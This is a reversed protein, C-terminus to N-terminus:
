INFDLDEYELALPSIRTATPGTSLGTYGNAANVTFTKPTNSRTINYLKSWSYHGLDSSMSTAAGATNGATAATVLGVNSVNCIVNAINGSYNIGEVKYIGDANYTGVGITNGSGDTSTLGGYPGFRTDKLVFYDGVAIGSKVLPTTGDGFAEQNLYAASDLKLNITPRSNVGSTSKGVAVITGYDGKINVDTIRERVVTQTSFLSKPPSIVDYGFGGNTITIGNVTGAASVTATATAKTVEFQSYHINSSVGVAVLKNDGFALGNIQVGVPSGDSILHKKYWNDGNLSNYGMGNGGAAFWVNDQHNVSWLAFTGGTGVINWTLGDDISKFISGASGVAVWETNGYGIANINSSISTTTVGSWIEGDTSRYLAGANGVAVFTGNNYEVDNFQQTAWKNAVVFATAIGADGPESYLITGAAGVAVTRERNVTVVQGGQIQAVPVVGSAVGRLSQSITVDTYSPIFGTQIKDYIRSPGFSSGRDTSISITGGTGVVVIATSLGTVANITTGSAGLSKTWTVGDTSTNIGSTSGVAVFIGEPTYDVGKFNIDTESSKKVWTAGIEPTQSITSAISIVPASEYGAGFENMTISDVKGGASVVVTGRATEVDAIKLLEVKGLVKTNSTRNDYASFMPFGSDLYMTTDSASIPRIITGVPNFKATYNSREKSIPIGDVILDSEQKKWSSVRVLSPNTSIGGGGYSPTEIKSVDTIDSIVRDSQTPVDNDRLLQLKDGVKVTRVPNLVEIDANGGRYFLVQLKSDKKPAEVFNLTTGGELTYNEGPKQLVDNLFILLNNAAEISTDLSLITVVDKVGTTLNLRTLLFSKTLGDFDNSFNDLAVLQGFSFGAFTDNIIKNVTFTFASTSIGPEFPIGQVTLVDTNKYGYGRDIVNYDIVTGGTGVTIDAEFGTGSGGTFSLNHYCTSLGVKIIPPVTTGTRPYSHQTM